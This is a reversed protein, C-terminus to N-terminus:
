SKPPIEPVAGGQRDVSAIRRTGRACPGPRPRVTRRPPPQRPPAPDPGPVVQACRAIRTGRPTTATPRQRRRASAGGLRVPAARPPLTPRPCAPGRRIRETDIKDVQPPAPASWGQRTPRNRDRAPSNRRTSGPGFRVAGPGPRATSHAPRVHSWAYRPVFPGPEGPEGRQEARGRTHAINTQSLSTM